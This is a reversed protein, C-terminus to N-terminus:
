TPRSWPMAGAPHGAGPGPRAPSTLAPRFAPEDGANVAKELEADLVNLEDTASDDVRLQGEGLIRVIM